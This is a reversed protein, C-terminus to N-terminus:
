NRKRKGKVYECKSLDITFVRQMNPGIVLSDRRVADIDGSLREYKAREMLKLSVMYGGWRPSTGERAVKPKVEFKFDFVVYGAADFRRSFAALVREQVETLNEFDNEISFDLDLSSRESIGLAINLANGGKLVVKDYLFDDSFMATIAIRRVAQFDLPVNPMSFYDWALSQAM